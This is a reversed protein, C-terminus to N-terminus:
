KAVEIRGDSWVQLVDPSLSYPQGNFDDQVNKRALAQFNSSNAKSWMILFDRNSVAAFFPEGLVKAAEQRVWPVLLRVADYGDKEEIGLFKDPGDAGQLKANATLQDLNQLAHEFLTAESVQWRERDEERVYGYGDQQNIVVALLVNPIFPRTVLVHRRKLLRIYDEKMLQLAVVEKAEHWTLPRTPESQETLKMIVSFHRRIEDSRESATLPGLCLKALLNQLGFEVEGMVVVDVSTGKSFLRNPYDKKLISLAEDQLQVATIDCPAAMGNPAAVLLLFTSLLLRIRMTTKSLMDM